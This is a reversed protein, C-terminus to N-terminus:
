YNLLVVYCTYLVLLIKLVDITGTADKNFSAFASLRYPLVDMRTPIVQGNPTFEVLMNVSVFFGSSPYVFSFDINVMKTAGPKIYGEDEMKKIKKKYETRTMDYPYFDQIYGSTPYYKGFNGEHYESGATFRFDSSKDTWYEGWADNTSHIL